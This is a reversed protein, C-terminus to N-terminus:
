CSLGEDSFFLGEEALLHCTYFPQSTCLISWCDECRNSAACWQLPVSMIHWAAPFVDWMDTIQKNKDSSIKCEPKSTSHLHGICPCVCSNVSALLSPHLTISSPWHLLFSSSRGRREGMKKTLSFCTWCRIQKTVLDSSFISEKWFWCPVGRKTLDDVCDMMQLKCFLVASKLLAKVEKSLLVAAEERYSFVKKATSFRCLPQRVQKM